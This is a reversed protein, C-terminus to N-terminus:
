IFPTLTNLWREFKEKKRDLYVTADEYLWNMFIQGELGNLTIIHANGQPRVKPKFGLLLNLQSVYDNLFSEGGIITMQCTNYNKNEPKWFSFSGDGDFYGRMFHKRLHKPLEPFIENMSKRPLVGLEMLSKCLHSNNIRLNAGPYEKGTKDLYTVRESIPADSGLVDRIKKLHNIDKRSLLIGLRYTECSESLICGDAVIFGLWYAQEESHINDFFHKNVTYKTVGSYRVEDLVEIDHLLFYKRITTMNSNALKAIHTLTYKNKHHQEILWDKNKYNREYGLNKIRKALHSRHLGITKSIDELLVNDDCYLKKLLIEDIEKKAPM